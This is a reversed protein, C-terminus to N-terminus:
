ASATVETPREFATDLGDIQVERGKIRISIESGERRIWWLEREIIRQVQNLRVDDIGSLYGIVEDEAEDTFWRLQTDYSEADGDYCPCFLAETFFTLLEDHTITSAATLCLVSEDIMTAYPGAFLIFDTEIEWSSMDSGTRLSGFVSLNGPRELIGPLEDLVYAQRGKSTEIVYGTMEIIPLADYWAYGAFAPQPAFVM